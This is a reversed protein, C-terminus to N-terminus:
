KDTFIIKCISKFFALACEKLVKEINSENKKEEKENWVFNENM